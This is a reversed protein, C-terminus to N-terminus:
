NFSEKLLKEDCEYALTDCNSITLNIPNKCLMRTM